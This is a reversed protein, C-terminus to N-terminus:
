RPPPTPQARRVLGLRRRLPRTSSALYSRLTYAQRTAFARLDGRAGREMEERWGPYHRDMVPGCWARFVAQERRSWLRWDLPTGGSATNSRPVQVPPPGDLGLFEWLAPLRANLREIPLCLATLRLRGIEREILRNTYAWYWCCRAFPDLRAWEAASVEGVQDGHVRHTVWGRVAPPRLDLERPHYWKRHLMSSVTDRGDRIVWILRATPFAEALAPLVFSLRQNAEGSMRTGGIAQPSRTRRLLEVMAAHSLRGALFDSVEGLLPPPREHVLRCGPVGSLLFALTTTGSRGTGVVFVHIPDM